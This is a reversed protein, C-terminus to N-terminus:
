VSADNTAIDVRASFWDIVEAAGSSTELRLGGQAFGSRLQALALVTQQRPSWVVSTVRGIPQGAVTLEQGAPLADAGFWRLGVLKRNVHGLADIRAVTEQGLYCGKTFSIAAADRNVEQPLCDENIDRGFLPFGAEVRAIDFVEAACPRVGGAILRRGLEDSREAPCSVLFAPVVALPVRRVSIPVGSVNGTQHALLGDPVPGGVLAALAAAAHQGAVFFEVARAQLDHFQVNERIVYRDLHRVITEGQGPSTELTLDESGCFVFVHGVLKGKANTLFAECGTGRVLRKIDNTCFGQLFRVRDAGTVRIQTRDGVDVFGAHDLLFTYQEITEPAIPPPTM